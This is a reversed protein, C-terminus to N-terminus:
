KRKFIFYWFLTIVLIIFIVLEFDHLYHMYQLIKKGFAWGLGGIITARLFLGIFSLTLYKKIPMNIIGAFIALTIAPILPVTRFFIFALNEWKHTSIKNQLDELDTKSTHFYKGYREIFKIGFTRSLYLAPLSGLGLGLTAPLPITYIFKLVNELNFTAGNMLFIGSMAQTLISPIFPFLEELVSVWFVGWAGWLKIYESILILIHEMNKLLLYQNVKDQLFILIKVM